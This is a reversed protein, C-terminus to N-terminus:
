PKRARRRSSFEDLALGDCPRARKHPALYILCDATEVLFIEDSVELVRVETELDTLLAQLDGAKRQRHCENMKFAL